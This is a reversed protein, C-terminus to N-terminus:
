RLWPESEENIERWSVPPLATQAVYGVRPVFVEVYRLDSAVDRFPCVRTSSCACLGGDLRLGVVEGTHRCRIGHVSM